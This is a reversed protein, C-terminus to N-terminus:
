GLTARLVYLHGLLSWIDKQKNKPKNKQALFSKRRRLHWCFFWPLGGFMKKLLITFRQLKLAKLQKWDKRSNNARKLKKDKETGGVRLGVIACIERFLLWENVVLALLFDRLGGLFPVQWKSNLRWNQNNRNFAVNRVHCPSIFKSQLPTCLKVSKTCLRRIRLSLM